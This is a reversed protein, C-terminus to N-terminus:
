IRGLAQVKWALWFKRVPTLSVRQNLVQFNDREIERLLTRYISAMMLGPKQARRDALPLLALAEDYAVHARAAQFKMLTVFRESHVRNLIEHAKVDFKQLENVPLYIRGRLADEGVDRLINTLQLALGLKHAYTTTKPDTQGFIRAAVEGVVGAVLHCYRALGPFDLYRTQDLDMQCGDIVEHLQRAEIGYAATHPMLAQMVPHRPTGAFSQAVETRWWALKTAAVGPDTVEDVVDDVERCFAYFATIAARRPKPLFLFAYYFSSGSAAAKDQVYQEPNM